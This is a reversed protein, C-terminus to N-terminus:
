QEEQRIDAVAEEFRRAANICEVTYLAQSCRDILSLAQRNEPTGSKRYPNLFEPKRAWAGILLDLAHTLVVAEEPTITLTCTSM